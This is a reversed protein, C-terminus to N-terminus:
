DSPKFGCHPCYNCVNSFSRLSSKAWDDKFKILLALQGAMTEICIYEASSSKWECHHLERPKEPVEPNQILTWAFDTGCYEANWDENREKTMVWTSDWDTVYIARIENLPTGDEFKTWEM